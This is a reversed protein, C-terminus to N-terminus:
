SRRVRKLRYFLFGGTLLLLVIEPLWSVAPQVFDRAARYNPDSGTGPVGPLGNVQASVFQIKPTGNILGIAFVSTVTNMSLTTSVPLTTNSQSANIDFTYAGSPESLYDSAQPYSLANIVTNGNTAVSVVGTGPSLHYVRVKASGSAVLNDDSFVQLSFGTAATGLAAVTYPVGPQVQITQTITAAGPGTGILGVQVNHPGASIPAYPTVTGFQFNNLLVNGDVFVTATGIDPSAHIVRVYSPSAAAAHRVPMGWFLFLASVVAFLTIGLMFLKSFPTGKM